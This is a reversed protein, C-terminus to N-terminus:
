DLSFGVRPICNSCSRNPSKWTMMPDQPGSEEGQQLGSLEATLLHISIVLNSRSPTPWLTPTIVPEKEPLPPVGQRLPVGLAVSNEKDWELNRGFSPWEFCLTIRISPLFGPLYLPGGRLSGSTKVKGQTVQRSLLLLTHWKRRQGQRGEFDEQAGVPSEM